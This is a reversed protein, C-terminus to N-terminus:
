GGLLETRLKECDEKKPPRYHWVNKGEMFSAGKGKVTRAIVALPRSSHGMRGLAAKLADEDHGDVEVVDLGFSLFKEKLPALSCIASTQGVGGM